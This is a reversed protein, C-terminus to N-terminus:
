APRKAVLHDGFGSPWQSGRRVNVGYHWRIALTLISGGGSVCVWSVTFDCTANWRVGLGDSIGFRNITSTLHFLRLWVAAYERDTTLRSGFKKQFHHTFKPDQVDNISHGYVQHYHHCVQSSDSYIPAKIFLVKSWDFLNDNDRFVKQQQKVYMQNFFSLPNTVSSLM